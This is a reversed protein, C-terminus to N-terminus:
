SSVGLPMSVGEGLKALIKFEAAVKSYGISKLTTQVKAEKYYASRNLNRTFESLAELIEQDSGFAIGQITLQYERKGDGAGPSV